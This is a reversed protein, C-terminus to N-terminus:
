EAYCSLWDRLVGCCAEAGLCQHGPFGEAAGGGLDLEVDHRLLGVPVLIPITLDVDLCHVLAGRM